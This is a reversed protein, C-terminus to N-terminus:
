TPWSQVLVEARTHALPALIFGFAIHAFLVFEGVLM